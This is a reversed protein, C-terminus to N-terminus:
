VVGAPLRSTAQKTMAPHFDGIIQRAQAASHNLLHIATMAPLKAPTPYAHRPERIHVDAGHTKGRTVAVCPHIVPMSLPPTWTRREIM